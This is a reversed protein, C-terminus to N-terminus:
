NYTAGSPRLALEVLIPYHDSGFSPLRRDAVVAIDPSVFCHDIPIGVMPLLTPWSARPARGRRVDTLGTRALWDAYYPSYPSINFDGAVIVPDRAASVREALLELQRNREAARAPALPSRLHVGVLTVDVAGVKLRADIAATPGLMFIRASSLERRSFLAIGYADRGPSELGYPHTARLEALREALDSTYEVLLVADPAERRITELLRSASSKGHFVNAFLLRITPRNGTADRTTAHSSPLYPLVPVASLVACAALAATWAFRRQTALLIALLADIVVYQVRFHSALDFAWGLRAFLPILSAALAATAALTLWPGLRRV